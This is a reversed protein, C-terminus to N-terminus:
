YKFKIYDEEIILLCNNKLNNLNFENEILFIPVVDVGHTKYENYCRKSALYIYVCKETITSSKDQLLSVPDLIWSDRDIKIMHRIVLAEKKNVKKLRILAKLVNIILYCDGKTHKYLVNWNYLLM